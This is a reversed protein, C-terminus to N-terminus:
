YVKTEMSRQQGHVHVHVHVYHIDEELIRHFSCLSSRREEGEGLIRSSLMRSDFITFTCPVHALGIICQMHQRM